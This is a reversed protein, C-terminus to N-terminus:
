YQDDDDGLEIEGTSPEVEYEDDYAVAAAAAVAPRNSRRLPAALPQGPRPAPAVRLSPDIDPRAPAAPKPLIGTGYQFLGSSPRPEPREMPMPTWGGELMRRTLAAGNTHPSPLQGPAAPPPLQYIAHVPAALREAPRKSSAAHTEAEQHDFDASPASADEDAFAVVPQAEDMGVDAFAEDGVDFAPEAVAAYPEAEALLEQPVEVQGSPPVEGLQAARVMMIREFYIRGMEDLELSDLEIEFRHEPERDEGNDYASLCRGQGSLAPAGDGFTVEFQIWEGEAVAEYHPLMIRGEEVRPAFSEALEAIDNFPTPISIM